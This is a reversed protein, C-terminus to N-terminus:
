GAKANPGYVILDDQREYQIYECEIAFLVVPLINKCGVREIMRRRHTEVTRYSVCLIDSIDKNTKGKKILELIELERRSFFGKERWDIGELIKEELQLNIIMEEHDSKLQDIVSVIEEPDAEQKSFFADMENIQAYLYNEFLRKKSSLLVMKLEPFQKKLETVKSFESDDIIDFVLVDVQERIEETNLFEISECTSFVQIGEQQNLFLSLGKRLLTNQEILILNM